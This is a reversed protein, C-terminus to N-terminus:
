PTETGCKLEFKFSESLYWFIQVDFCDYTRYQSLFFSHVRHNYFVPIEDIWERGLM